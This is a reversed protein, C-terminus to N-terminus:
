RMASLRCSNRFMKSLNTSVPRLPRRVPGFGSRAARSVRFVASTAMASFKVLCGASM